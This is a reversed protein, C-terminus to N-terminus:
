KNHGHGEIADFTKKAEKERERQGEVRLPCKICEILQTNEGLIFKLLCSIRRVKFLSIHCYVFVTYEKTVM